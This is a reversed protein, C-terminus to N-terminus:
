FISILEDVVSLFFKKEGYHFAEVQKIRRLHMCKGRYTNLAETIEKIHMFKLQSKYREMREMKEPFQKTINIMLNGYLPSMVEYMAVAVEMTPLSKLAKQLLSTTYQHDIHQDLLWPTFIIEPEFDEICAKIKDMADSEFLHSDEYDLFIQEVQTGEWVKRAEDNRLKEDGSIVGYRGDTMYMIKVQTGQELYALITGGCGILEDDQHPALVLIRNARPLAGIESQVQSINRILLNGKDVRRM